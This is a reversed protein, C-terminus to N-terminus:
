LIVMAARPFAFKRGVQDVVNIQYTYRGPALGQLPVDV